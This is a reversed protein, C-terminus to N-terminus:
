PNCNQCPTYGMNIAQQRTGNFFSKNAANMRSVSACDSRHFVRSSTNLVYSTTVPKTAQSVPQYVLSNVASYAGKYSGFNPQVQVYYRTGSRLNLLPYYTNATTVSSWNSASASKYYVTYSKADRFANWEARIGNSKNSLKLTPKITTIHIINKPASFPGNVTSGIPRVQVYYNTGSVVGSIPLSTNTTTATKWSSQNASKFYVIYKKTGKIANWKVMVANAQNSLTVTPAVLTAVSKASSWAGYATGSNSTAYMARVQYTYAVGGVASETFSNKTTTFYTYAKDGSKLRAIQYKNAGGVANWKLTNNGNYTLSTINAQPIYTLSKVKSFGGKDGSAAVPQVQVYYLKGPTLWSLQAYNNYSTFSNWGSESASKYFVTYKEANAIKNWGAYVGQSNNSLSVTPVAMNVRYNNIASIIQSTTHYCNNYNLVGAKSKNFVSNLASTYQSYTAQKKASGNLSYKYTFDNPNSYNFNNSRATRSGSFVVNSTGSQRYVTDGYHGQRGYSLLFMNNQVLITGYVAATITDLNGNNYTIVQAAGMAASYSLFLEPIGNGDLDKIWGWGDGNNISASMRNVYNIYETKWASTAAGASFPAIMMVGFLMVVALIVATIRSFKKM